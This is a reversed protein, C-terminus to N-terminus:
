AVTQLHVAVSSLRWQDHSCGAWKQMVDLSPSVFDNLIIDLELIVKCLLFLNDLIKHIDESNLRNSVFIFVVTMLLMMVTVVFFHDRPHAEWARSEDEADRQFLDQLM